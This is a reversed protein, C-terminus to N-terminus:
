SAVLVELACIAGTSSALRVAVAEVGSLKTLKRDLEGSKAAGRWTIRRDQLVTASWQTSSRPSISTRIRLEQDKVRLEVTM